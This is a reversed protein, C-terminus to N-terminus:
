AAQCRLQTVPDERGLVRTLSPTGGRVVGQWRLSGSAPLSGFGGSGCGNVREHVGKEGVRTSLVNACAGPSASASGGRDVWAVAM